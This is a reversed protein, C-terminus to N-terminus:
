DEGLTESKSTIQSVAVVFLRLHNQSAGSFIESVSCMVKPMFPTTFNMKQTLQYQNQLRSIIAKQRRSTTSILSCVDLKDSDHYIDTIQCQHSFLSISKKLM